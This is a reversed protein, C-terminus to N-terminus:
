NLRAAIGLSMLLGASLVSPSLRCPQRGQFGEFSIPLPALGGRKREPLLFGKPMRDVFRESGACRAIATKLVRRM